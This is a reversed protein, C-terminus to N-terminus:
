HLRDLAHSESFRKRIERITVHPSSVWRKARLLQACDVPRRLLPAAPRLAIEPLAALLRVWFCEKLQPQARVLRHRNSALCWGSGM